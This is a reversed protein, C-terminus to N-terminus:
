LCTQPTTRRAQRLRGLSVGVARAQPHFVWVLLKLAKLQTVALEEATGAEVSRWHAAGKGIPVTMPWGFPNFAAFQFLTPAPQRHRQDILAYALFWFYASFVATMSWLLAQPLGQVLHSAAVGLLCFWLIHQALVPRRGLPHDRYRRALYIAMAALPVCAILTGARLVGMRLTGLLHEQQIVAYVARFDVWDPARALLAGTCVLLALHRHRGALSVLAAAITLVLWMGGAETWIGRAALKMLAAFAAFLLLKGPWTQAFAVVAPYTEIPPLRANLRRTDLEDGEM